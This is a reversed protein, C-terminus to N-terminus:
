FVYGRECLWYHCLETEEPIVNSQKYVYNHVNYGEMWEESTVLLQQLIGLVGDGHASLDTSTDISQRIVENFYLRFHTESYKGAEHDFGLGHLFLSQVVVQSTKFIHKSLCADLKYNTKM